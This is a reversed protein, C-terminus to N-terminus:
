GSLAERERERWSFLVDHALKIKKAATKSVIYNDGGKTTHMASLIGCEYMLSYALDLGHPMRVVEGVRTSDNDTTIMAAMGVRWGEYFGNIITARRAIIDDYGASHKKAATFWHGRSMLDCAQEIWNYASLLASRVKRETLQESM